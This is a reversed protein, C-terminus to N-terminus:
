NDAEGNDQIYLNQSSTSPTVQRSRDILLMFILLKKIQKLREKLSTKTLFMYQFDNELPLINLLFWHWVPGNDIIKPFFLNYSRKFINKLIKVM